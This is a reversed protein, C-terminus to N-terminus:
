MNSITFQLKIDVKFIFALTISVCIGIHIPETIVEFHIQPKLVKYTFLPTFRRYYIM